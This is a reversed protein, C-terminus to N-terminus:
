SIESFSLEFKKIAIGNRKCFGTLEKMRDERLKGTSIIIESIEAGKVVHNLDELTGLIPYSNMVRGKKNRDDDIFGVPRSFYIGSQRLEKLLMSGKRGAGYILTKRRKDVSNGNYFSEFIRYSIRYGIVLSLMIYFDIIFFIAGGFAELGFIFGLVLIPITSSIILTKVIRIIDTISSYKWSGKYLGTMYFITIKLVLIIPLTRIFMAKELGGFGGWILIFSLYYSFSIIFLDFFAQFLKKNVAPFDFLPLFLGSELVKFEKYKLSKIGIFVSVIIAILFLTINFNAWVVTLLAVSCLTACIGYLIIVTKKHSFGLKLLRHHIHDKDAEFMSFGKFFAAKFKGNKTPYDILNVSKLFRRIMSLLTDMIPLGLALIPALIAVLAAGKTSGEISFIALLFGLYLSGSDGLFIKAPYFNYRLFGLISGALILSVIGIGISQNFYSIAFITASVILATGAALGDLGDVLNLANTIGVLWLITIPIALFGLYIVNGTFPNSVAQIGFGFLVMLTGVLIQFLFKTRPYLKKIDDYIGIALIITQAILFYEWRTFLFDKIYTNNLFIGLLLTLNLSVFIPVGGLLPVPKRHIKRKSPVDCINVKKAFLRILPTISLSLGLSVLFFIFYKIM